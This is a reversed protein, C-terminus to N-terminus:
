THNEFFNAKLYSMQFNPPIHFGMIIEEMVFKMM